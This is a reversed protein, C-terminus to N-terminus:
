VNITRLNYVTIVPCRSTQMATTTATTTISIATTTFTVITSNM